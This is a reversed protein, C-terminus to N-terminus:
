VTSARLPKGDRDLIKFGARDAELLERELIALEERRIPKKYKYYIFGHVASYSTLFITCSILCTHTIRFLLEVRYNPFLRRYLPRSDRRRTALLLESFRM